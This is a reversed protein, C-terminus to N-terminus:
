TDEAVKLIAEAVKMGEERDSSFVLVETTSATSANPRIELRVEQGKLSTKLRGGKELKGKAAGLKKLAGEIIKYATNSDCGLTAKGVYDARNASEKTSEAWLKAGGLAGLAAGGAGIPLAGLAMIPVACGPLAMLFLVLLASLLFEKTKTKM